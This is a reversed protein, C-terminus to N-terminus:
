NVCRSQSVKVDLFKFMLLIALFTTVLSALSISLMLPLLFSDSAETEVVDVSDDSVDYDSSYSADDFM